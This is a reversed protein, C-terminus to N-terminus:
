DAIERHNQQICIPVTAKTDEYATATATATTRAVRHATTCDNIAIENISEFINAHIQPFVYCQNEKWNM